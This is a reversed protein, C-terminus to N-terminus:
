QNLNERSQRRILRMEKRGTQNYLAVAFERNNKIKESIIRCADETECELFASEFDTLEDSVSVNDESVTSWDSSELSDDGRVINKTRAFMGCAIKASVEPKERDSAGENNRPHARQTWSHLLVGTKTYAFVSPQGMGKPYVATENCRETEIDNFVRRAMVNNPDGYLPFNIGWKRRTDEATSQDQSTIGVVCGGYRRVHELQRNWQKMWKECFFCWFGRYFVVVIFEHSDQLAQVAAEVDVPEPVSAAVPKAPKLKASLGRRLKGRKSLAKHLEPDLMGRFMSWHMWAAEDSGREWLQHSDRWDTIRRMKRGWAKHFDNGPANAAWWQLFPQVASPNMETAPTDREPEGLSCLQIFERVTKRLSDLKRATEYQGHFENFEKGTAFAQIISSIGNAQAMTEMPQLKTVLGYELPKVLAICVFRLMSTAVASTYVHTADWKETYRIRALQWVRRLADPVDEECVARILKKRTATSPNDLFANYVPQIRACWDTSLVRMCETLIVTYQSDERAVVTEDPANRCEMYLCHDVIDYCQGRAIAFQVIARVGAKDSPKLSDILAGLLTCHTDYLNDWVFAAAHKAEIKPAPFQMVDQVGLNAIPTALSAM